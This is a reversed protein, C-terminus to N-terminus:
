GDNNEKHKRIVEQALMWGHENRNWVKESDLDHTFEWESGDANEGQLFVEATWEAEAAYTTLAEMAEHYLAAYHDASAEHDRALQKWDTM